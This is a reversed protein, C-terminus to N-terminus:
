RSYRLTVNVFTPDGSKATPNYFVTQPSPDDHKLLRSGAGAEKETNTWTQGAGNQMELRGNTKGWTKEWDAVQQRSMKVESSGIQLNSLPVPTVLISILEAVQDNRSPTLTLYPPNDQQAPIEIVKGRTTQNNGGLLRTTPFILYPDGQSGDAYVERDIVYLYGDRSAEISLRVFDGKSLKADSAVRVPSYPTTKSAGTQVPITVQSGASAPELRWLTIGVVSDPAVTQVSVSPTAVTYTPKPPSPPKATNAPPKAASNAPAAAPQQSGSANSYQEPWIRRTDDDQAFIISAVFLAITVLLTTRM